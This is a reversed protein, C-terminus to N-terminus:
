INQLIELGQWHIFCINQLRWILFFDKTPIIKGNILILSLANLFRYLNNGENLTLQLLDSAIKIYEVGADEWPRYMWSKLGLMSCLFLEANFM